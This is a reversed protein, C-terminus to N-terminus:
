KLSMLIEKILSSVEKMDAKGKVLPTVEKMVLGMDKESTPQVKAIAEDIVKTLEDKTMQKPLYNQLLSIEKNTKEILDDRGGKEFETISEKRPWNSFSLSLFLM